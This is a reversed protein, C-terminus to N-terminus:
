RKNIIAITWMDGQWQIAVICHPLALENGKGQTICVLIGKQEIGYINIKTFLSPSHPM